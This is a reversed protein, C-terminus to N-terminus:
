IDVQIRVVASNQKVTFLVSKNAVNM